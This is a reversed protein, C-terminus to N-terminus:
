SRISAHCPWRQCVGSAQARGVLVDRSTRQGARSRLGRTLGGAGAEELDAGAAAVQQPGRAVAEIHEGNVELFLWRGDRRVVSLGLSLEQGFYQGM